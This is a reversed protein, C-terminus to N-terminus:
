RAGLGAKAALIWDRFSGLYSRFVALEFTPAEDRQWLIVSIQAVVTTAASGSRFVSPHLDIAVARQLFERAEGGTFRVVVYAGSQDSVSALGELSEELAAIWGPRADPMVALWQGPGTGILAVDGIALIEPRDALPLKLAAGIGTADAGKRAMVTALGVGDREGIHLDAV